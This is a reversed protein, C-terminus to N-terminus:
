EAKRFWVSLRVRNDPFTRSYLAMREKVISSTTTASETCPHALRLFQEEAVGTEENRSFHIPDGDAIHSLSEDVPTMMLLKLWGCQAVSKTLLSAYHCITERETGSTRPNWSAKWGFAAGRKLLEIDHPLFEEDVRGRLEFLRNKKCDLVLLRRARSDINVLILKSPSLAALVSLSRRTEYTNLHYTAKGEFDSRVDVACIGDRTKLIAYKDLALLGIKGPESDFRFGIERDPFDYESGDKSSTVSYTRLAVRKIRSGTLSAFSSSLLSGM